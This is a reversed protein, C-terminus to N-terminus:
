NEKKNSNETNQNLRAQKFECWGEQGQLQSSEWLQSHKSNQMVNM